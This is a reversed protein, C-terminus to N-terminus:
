VCICVYWVGIALPCVTNAYKMTRMGYLSHEDCQSKHKTRPGSTRTMLQAPLIVYTPEQNDARQWDGEHARLNWIACVQDYAKQLSYDYTSLSLSLLKSRVGNRFIFSITFSSTSCLRSLQIAVFSVFCFNRIWEIIFCLPLPWM